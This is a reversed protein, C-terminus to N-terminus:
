RGILKVETSERTGAGDLTGVETKRKCQMSLIVMMKSYNRCSERYKLIRIKTRIKVKDKAADGNITDLSKTFFM